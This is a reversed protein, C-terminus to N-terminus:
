GVSKMNLGDLDINVSRPQHYGIQLSILQDLGISVLGFWYNTSSKLFYLYLHGYLPPQFRRSARIYAFLTDPKQISGGRM